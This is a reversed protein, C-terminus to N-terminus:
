RRVNPPSCPAPMAMFRACFSTPALQDSELALWKIEAQPDLRHFCAEFWPIGCLVAIERCIVTARASADAPILGATLDGGGMDEALATEVNRAIEAALEM